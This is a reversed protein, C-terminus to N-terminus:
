ALGAQAADCDMPRIGRGGEEIRMIDMIRTRIAIAM